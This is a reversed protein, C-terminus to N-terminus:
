KGFLHGLGDQCTNLGMRAIGLYLSSWKWHHKGLANPITNHSIHIHDPTDTFIQDGGQLVSNQLFHLKNLVHIYIPPPDTIGHFILWPHMASNGSELEVWGGTEVDDFALATVYLGPYHLALFHLCRLANIIMLQWSAQIIFHWSAPIIFHWKAPSEVQWTGLHQGSVVQCKYFYSETIGRNQDFNM